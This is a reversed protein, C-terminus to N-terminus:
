LFDVGYQEAIEAKNMPIVEVEMKINEEPREGKTKAKAIEDIVDFGEVVRGFVTYGGDLQFAGGITTYAELQEQSFPPNADINLADEVIDKCSYIFKNIAENRGGSAIISNISDALYQYEQNASDTMLTKFGESLKNWDAGIYYEDFVTGDVIYFQCGSSAKEPNIDDGLRAAAVAGRTHMFKGSVKDPIEAPVTYDVTGAEGEKANVDGGQIMFGDIVRHFITGDYKGSEALKLFNEKHKPTEDFLVFKIDGLDTKVVILNDDKGPGCAFVLLALSLILLNKM